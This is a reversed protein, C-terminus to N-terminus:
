YDKRIGNKQKKGDHNKGFSALRLASKVIAAQEPTLEEDPSSIHGSVEVKDTYSPHHHKLWFSIAPWNKDKILSIIQAEGMDNILLIGEAIAEDTMKRFDANKDRLRYYTARSIGAQKCAIEVIPTKRLYELLLKKDKDNKM